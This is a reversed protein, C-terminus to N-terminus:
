RAEGDDPGAAAETDGPRADRGPVEVGGSGAVRGAAEAGGSGATRGAAEAGGSGAARGAGEADRGPRVEADRGPRVGADRGASTGADRERGRRWAAIRRLAADAPQQDAGGVADGVVPLRLTMTLGGGPTHEPDLTGHMAEALGRSLALGLGVGTENDRDGLRQFPLFVTDWKSAPIGPGHDVVRVAVYGGHESVSLQPPRDAPSYRLANRLLNALIREVLVPDARVEPTDDPIRVPVPRAAAGIEDLAAATAEAVSMPQQAM